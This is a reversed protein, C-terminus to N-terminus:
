GPGPQSSETLQELGHHTNQRMIRLLKELLVADDESISSMVQNVIERAAPIAQNLVERGKDTLTINMCRRDNENREVRVLGDRKLRNVLTTVNHPETQTWQAIESPTVIADPNRVFTMLAIFKVDSLGAKRYFYADKYKQLARAVQVFLIFTGSVVDEHRLEIMKNARRQRNGVKSNVM